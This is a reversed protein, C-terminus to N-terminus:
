YGPNQTLTPNGEDDRTIDIQNSPIPMYDSTYTGTATLLPRDETRYYEMITEEAIGWRVLDYWRFGELALEIRREHRVAQRAFDQSPFSAYPEIVYNAAPSGDAFTLVGGNKARNRIQNVLDLATALDNAEVAVEARSLM